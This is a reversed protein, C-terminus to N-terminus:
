LGEYFWAVPVGLEHALTHLKTASIISKGRDYKQMQQWSVDLVGALTKLSIGLDLRRERVRQCIHQNIPEDPTWRTM